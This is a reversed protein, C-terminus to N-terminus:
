ARWGSPVWCAGSGRPRQLHSPLGLLCPLFSGESTVPRVRRSSILRGTHLHLLQPHGQRSPQQRSLSSQRGPAPAPSRAGPIGWLGPADPWTGLLDSPAPVAVPASTSTCADLDFRSWHIRLEWTGLPCPDRTVSLSCAWHGCLVTFVPYTLTTASRSGVPVHTCLAALALFVGCRIVVAAPASSCLCHRVGGHRAEMSVTSCRGAGSGTGPVRAHGTLHSKRAAYLMIFVPACGAKAVRETTPLPRHQLLFILDAQLRPGSVPALDGDQHQYVFSPSVWGGPLRTSGVAHHLPLGLALAGAAALPDCELAEHGRLERWRPRRPPLRQARAGHMATDM